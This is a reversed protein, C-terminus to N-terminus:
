VREGRDWILVGGEKRWVSFLYLNFECSATWVYHLAHAMSSTEEQTATTIKFYDLIGYLVNNELYPLLLKKDFIKIQSLAYPIGLIFDLFAM